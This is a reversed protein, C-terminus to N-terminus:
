PSVRKFFTVIADEIGNKADLYDRVIGATNADWPTRLYLTVNGVATGTRYVVFYPINGDAMRGRIRNIWRGM